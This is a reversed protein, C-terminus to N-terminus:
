KVIIGRARIPESEIAWSDLLRTKKGGYEEQGNQVKKMKKENKKKKATKKKIKQVRERLHLGASNTSVSLCRKKRDEPWETVSIALSNFLDSRYLHVPTWFYIATKKPNLHTLFTISFATLMHTIIRCSLFTFFILSWLKLTELVVTHLYTVLLPQFATFLFLRRVHLCPASPNPFNIAFSSRWVRRLLEYM